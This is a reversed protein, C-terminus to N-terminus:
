GRIVRQASRGDSGIMINAPKLDRHTIGKQHAAVVADVIPIAIKLM